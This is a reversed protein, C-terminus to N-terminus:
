DAKRVFKVHNINGDEKLSKIEVVVAGSEPIEDYFKPEKENFSVGAIEYKVKKGSKKELVIAELEKGVELAESKLLQDIKEQRAQQAESPIEDVQITNLEGIPSEKYYQMLRASWGLVQLMVLANDQYSNLYKQCTQNISDLYPQTRKSHGIRHGNQALTKLYEFFKKGADEQEAYARLYSITKRFENVDTEEIVLQRAIADAVQWQIETLDTTAQM